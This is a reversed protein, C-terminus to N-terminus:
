QGYGWNYQICNEYVIDYTRQPNRLADQSLVAGTAAGMVAGPGRYDRRYLTYPRDQYGPYGRHRSHPHYSKVDYSLASGIAVGAAIGILTYAVERDLNARRTQGAIRHAQRRCKSDLEWSVGDRGGVPAPYTPMMPTPELSSCGCLLTLALASPFLIPKSNFTTM